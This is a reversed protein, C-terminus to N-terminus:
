PQELIKERYKSPTLGTFKKFSKSFYNGNTYGVKYSIDAIQYRADKLLEMAKEMRYETLYQNLTQGTQSKFYTCVYSASLNVHGSIDKISLLDNGYHKAIYDKILFIVNDEPVYSAMQQFLAETCDMLAQHLEDYTFCSELFEIISESSGSGPTGSPLKLRLRYDNLLQFLKYYTDKVQNSLLHCNKSYRSCLNKLFQICADHDKAALAEAFVSNETQIDSTNEATPSLSDMDRSVLLTGAPFFFSSQMAVVATTYSSHMKAIGTVIEGRSIFFLGLPHFQEKLFLDISSLVASSLANNGMIHFVHYIAHMRIYFSRLHYNKLFDDLNERLERILVSMPENTKLKVIYTVFSCGPVLRLSLEGALSDIKECNDKYPKTLLLALNSATELSLLDENQRSALIRQRRRVAEAVTAKVEEPDLPKEVYDIANLRIAAKLYEKDSYGSMFIIATDPLLSSLKEVLEIGNLRPMRIDSLIIDPQQLRAIHLARIGDDAQFIQHIGLSEWDITTILGQRTLLEDDAILLKMALVEEKAQM